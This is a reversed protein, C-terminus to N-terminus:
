DLALDTPHNLQNSQNGPGYEDVVISEKQDIWQRLLIYVVV